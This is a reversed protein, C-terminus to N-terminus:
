QIFSFLIFIILPVVTFLTMKFMEKKLYNDAFILVYIYKFITNSLVALLIIAAGFILEISGSKTLNSASITIADVDIVGSIFSIFYMGILGYYYKLAKILFVVTAYIFAFQLINLISFAEQFQNANEEEIQSNLYKYYKKVFALQVVIIILFGPFILTLLNINFIGVLIMIRLNMIIWAIIIGLILIEKKELKKSLISFNYTVATSSVLGGFFGVLVLSKAGKWRLLFYGIFDIASIIIVVKWIEKPNFADFPGYSKEPLIPYIVATLFAFKLITMVDQFYLSKAFNELPKKLALILTTLLAIFLATYYQNHYTLVGILFTILVSIETTVGKDKTYELFFNVLSFGIIALFSILLAENWFKDNIFASLLGLLSILPFTRVGAFVEEKVKYERELGILFGLVLSFLIKYLIDYNEM